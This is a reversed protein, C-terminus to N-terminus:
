EPKAKNGMKELHKVYEEDVKIKGTSDMQIHESPNFNEIKQEMPKVLENFTREREADKECKHMHYLVLLIPFLIWWLHRIKRRTKEEESEVYHDEPEESSQITDDDFLNSKIPKLPRDSLKKKAEQNGNYAAMELWYDSQEEDNLPGDNEYLCSLLFQADAEGQNAYDILEELAKEDGLSVKSYLEEITM